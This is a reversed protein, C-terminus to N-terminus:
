PHEHNPFLNAVERNTKPYIPPIQQFDSPPMGFPML